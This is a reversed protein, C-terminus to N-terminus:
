KIEEVVVEENTPVNIRDPIKIGGPLIAVQIGTAGPKTHAVAQARNVLNATDGTKKLYGYAFRWSRAKEGPLKGSLILECGFAGAQKVKELFKYSVIKFSNTGFNELAMAIQDAINQADFEPREVELIELKPNQLGFKKKLTDTLDNINEGRRGIVAGPKSTVIIIREGMPTKEIKISSLKGKGIHNKIFEKTKLEDKKLKIIKREIM